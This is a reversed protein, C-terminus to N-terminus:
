RALQVHCPCIILNTTVEQKVHELSMAKPLFPTRPDLMTDIRNSERNQHIPCWHSEKVVRPTSAFHGVIEMVRKKKPLPLKQCFSVLIKSPPNREVNEAPSVLVQM